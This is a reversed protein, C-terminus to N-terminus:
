KLFDEQVQLALRKIHRGMSRKCKAIAYYTNPTSARALWLMQCMKVVHFKYGYKKLIKKAGM